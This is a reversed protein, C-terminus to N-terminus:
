ANRQKKKACSEKMIQLSVYELVASRGAASLSLVDSILGGVTHESDLKENMSAVGEKCNTRGMIYDASVKYYDALVALARLPLEHTGTEYNSYHQQTTGIVNAVELQKLDNDERLERIMEACNKM